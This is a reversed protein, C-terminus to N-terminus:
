LRYCSNEGAVIEMPKTRRKFEKNLREIINTTRISIWEGQPPKYYTLCKELSQSLCKTASPLDSKWRDQFQEWQTKSKKYSSAYFISRLDDAVPQKQARPVKEVKRGIRMDFNVGNLYLYKMSDPSLDRTRWAEVAETLEKNASSVEAHSLSRGLLRKSILGISRTSIGTLFLASISAPGIDQIKGLSGSSCCRLSRWDRQNYISAFLERKPAEWCSRGQGTWISWPRLIRHDGSGDIPEYVPEDNTTHRASIGWIIKIASISNSKFVKQDRTCQYETGSHRKGGRNRQPVKDQVSFAM